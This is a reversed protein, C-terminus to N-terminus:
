IVCEIIKFVAGPKINYYALTKSGNLIEGNNALCIYDDDLGNEIAVNKTINRITENLRARIPMRKFGDDLIFEYIASQRLPVNQREWRKPIITRESSDTNRKPIRPPYYLPENKFRNGRLQTKDEDYIIRQYADSIEKFKEADGNPRDPHHKLSLKRYSSKIDDMSSWEDIDLVDHAVGGGNIISTNYWRGKNRNM